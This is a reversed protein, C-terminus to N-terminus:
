MRTEWLKEWQQKFNNELFSRAVIRYFQSFGDNLFRAVRVAFVFCHKICSDNQTDVIKIQKFIHLKQELMRENKIKNDTQTIQLMHAYNSQKCQFHIIFPKTQFCKINIFWVTQSSCSRITFIQEVLHYFRKTKLKSLRDCFNHYRSQQCFHAKM